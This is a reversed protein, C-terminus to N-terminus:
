HTRATFTAADLAVEFKEPRTYSIVERRALTLTLSATAVGMAVPRNSTLVHLVPAPDPHDLMWRTAHVRAESSYGSTERLDMFCQITGPGDMEDLAETFARSIDISVNGIIRVLM